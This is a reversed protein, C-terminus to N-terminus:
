NPLFPITHYCFETKTGETTHRTFRALLTKLKHTEVFLVLYFHDFASSKQHLTM